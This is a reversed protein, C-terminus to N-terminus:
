LPVRINPLSMGLDRVFHISEPCPLRNTPQIKLRAHRYLRPWPSIKEMRPLGSPCRATMQSSTITSMPLLLPIDQYTLLRTQWVVTMMSILFLTKQIYFNTMPCVVVMPLFVTVDRAVSSSHSENPIMGITVSRSINELCVTTIATISSQLVISRTLPGPISVEFVGNM